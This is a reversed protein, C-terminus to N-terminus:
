EGRRPRGRPMAILKRGIQDEIRRIFRKDGCPRGTRANEKITQTLSDDDREELYASWDKIRDV